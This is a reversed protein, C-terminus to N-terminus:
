GGPRVNATVVPLFLSPNASSSVTTTTLVATRSQGGDNQSTATITVSDADQDAAGPPISVTVTFVASAAPALMVLSTSLTTNWTQGTAALTFSDTLNGTNTITLSYIVQSGATGSKASGSSLSLDYFPTVATVIQASDSQAPDGQSTATITATDSESGSAGAPITVQVEFSGAAGAPLSVAAPLIQ